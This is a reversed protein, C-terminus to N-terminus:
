LHHHRLNAAVALPPPNGLYMRACASVETMAHRQALALANPNNDPVVLFLAAGAAVDALAAFVREASASDVAFLPGIKYGKRCPRVVGMAQLTDDDVLGVGRGGPPDIWRHLYAERGVGFHTLDFAAIDEFSLCAPPAILDDLPRPAGVGCMELNRHSFRFGAATYFDQMAFVGDMGIAAGPALRELLADRRRFWLARGLGHGRLDPRVMFLGMFGFVGGYSVISGAAVLEGDRHFGVYADPDTGWFVDADDVGPNWGERAAWDVLEDLESRALGRIPPVDAISWPMM